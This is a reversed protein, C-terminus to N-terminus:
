LTKVKGLHESLAQLTMEPKLLDEPIYVSLREDLAALLNMKGLSDLSLGGLTTLGDLKAKTLDRPLDGDAALQRILDIVTDIMSM